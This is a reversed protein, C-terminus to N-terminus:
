GSRTPHSHTVSSDPMNGDSGNVRGGLVGV